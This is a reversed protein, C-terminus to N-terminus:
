STDHHIAHFDPLETLALQGAIAGVFRGENELLKVEHGIERRKSFTMSACIEVADSILFLGGFRQPTNTQSVALVDEWAAKLLRAAVSAMARASIMMRFENKGILRSALERHLSRPV